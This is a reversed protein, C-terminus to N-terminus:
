GDRHSEEVRVFVLDASEHPRVRSHYEMEDRHLGQFLESGSEFDEVNFGAHWLGSNASLCKVYVIMDPKRGVAGLVDRLCIGEVVALPRGDLAGSLDGALADLDILERYPLGDPLSELREPNRNKYSAEDLGVVAVGLDAALRGALPTKGAQMVGEVGIIRPSQDRILVRLRALLAEYDRFEESM